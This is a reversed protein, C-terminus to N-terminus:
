SLKLIAEAALADLPPNRLGAFYNQFRSIVGIPHPLVHHDSVKAEPMLGFYLEHALWSMPTEPGLVKIVLLDCTMNLDNSSDDRDLYGMIIRFLANVLLLSDTFFLAPYFWWHGAKIGARILSHMPAIGVFDPVKQKDDWQGIHKTNWAFLCRYALKGWLSKLELWQGMAFLVCFTPRLQDRSCTGPRGFWYNRHWHRTPEEGVFVTQYRYLYPGIFMEAYQPGHEKYALLYRFLAEMSLRQLGDGFELVGQDDFHGIFGMGDKYDALQKM